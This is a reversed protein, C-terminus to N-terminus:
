YKGPFIGREVNRIIKKAKQHYGLFIRRGNEDISGHDLIYNKGLKRIIEKWKCGGSKLRYVELYLSIEAAPRGSIITPLFRNMHEKEEVATIGFKKKHDQLVKRVEDLILNIPYMVNIVLSIQEKRVGHLYDVEEKIEEGTPIRHERELIDEVYGALTELFLTAMEDDVVALPSRRKPQIRPFAYEDWWREFDYDSAHINGFFRWKMRNIIKFFSRSAEFPEMMKYEPNIGCLTDYFEPEPPVYADAINMSIIEGKLKIGIQEDLFQRFTEGGKQRIRCFYSYEKSEKLYEVWLRFYEKQSDTSM